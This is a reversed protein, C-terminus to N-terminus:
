TKDKLASLLMANDNLMDRIPGVFVSQLPTLPKRPPRPVPLETEAKRRLEQSLQGIEFALTNLEEWTLQSPEIDGGWAFEYLTVAIKPEPEDDYWTPFWYSLDETKTM